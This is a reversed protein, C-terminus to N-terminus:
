SPDPPPYRGRHSSGRPAGNAPVLLAITASMDVKGGLASLPTAGRDTGGGARQGASAPPVDHVDSSASVAQPM